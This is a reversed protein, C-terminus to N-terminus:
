ARRDKFQRPPGDARHIDRTRLRAIRPKRQKPFVILVFSKRGSPQPIQFVHVHNRLSPRWPVVARFQFLQKQFKGTGSPTLRRGRIGMVNAGGGFKSRRNCAVFQFNAKIGAAALM